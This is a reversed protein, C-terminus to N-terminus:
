HRAEAEEPLYWDGRAYAEEFWALAIAVAAELPELGGCGMSQAYWVSEGLGNEYTKGEEMAFVEGIHFDTGSEVEMAFSPDDNNNRVASRFTIM